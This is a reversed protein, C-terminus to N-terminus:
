PDDLGAETFPFRRSRCYERNSSSAGCVFCPRAAASWVTSEFAVRSQLVGDLILRVLGASVAAIGLLTYARVVLPELRNPLPRGLGAATSIVMWAIPYQVGGFVVGVCLNGVSGLELPSELRAVHSVIGIALGLAAFALQAKKM